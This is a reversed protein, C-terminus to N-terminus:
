QKYKFRLRRPQPVKYDPRLTCVDRCIHRWKLGYCLPTQLVTEFLLTYSHPRYLRTFFVHQSSIFYTKCCSYYCPTSGYLVLTIVVYPPLLKYCFSGETSYEASSKYGWQQQHHTRCFIAIEQLPPLSPPLSPTTVVRFDPAVQRRNTSTSLLYNSCQFNKSLIL